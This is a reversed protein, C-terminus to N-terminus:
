GDADTIHGAVLASVSVGANGAADEAIAPLGNAGSLVPADNVAVVGLTMARAPSDAIGDNVTFSITRATTDPADSLNVYTVAQLAAQLEAVTATQGASSLTLVGDSWSAAINGMTSGDNTFALQDQGAVYGGAIAVSASALTPSDADTITLT